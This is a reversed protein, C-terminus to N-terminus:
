YNSLGNNIDQLISMTQKYNEVAFKSECKTYLSHDNGGPMCQDGFFTKHDYMSLYDYIQGKDRGKGQIDISIRGGICAELEYKRFLDNFKDCIARREGSVLDWQYYDERQDQSIDRGVISFNLMGTRYEFNHSGLKHRSYKTNSLQEYLWLVVDPPLNLKKRYIIHDNVWLENGMCSFVGMCDYILKIPIQQKIKEFDSGSALFVVHNNIFEEFVLQFDSEITQRPLTLTGDVDFIFVKKIKNEMYRLLALRTNGEMLM